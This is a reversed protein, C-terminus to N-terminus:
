CALHFCVCQIGPSRWLTWLFYPLHKAGLPFLVSGVICYVGLEKLLLWSLLLGNEVEENPYRRGWIQIGAQWPPVDKECMPMHHYCLLLLVRACDTELATFFSKLCFVQSYVTHNKMGHKPLCGCWMWSSQKYSCVSSLTCCSTYVQAGFLESNSLM